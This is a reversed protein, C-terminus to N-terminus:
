LYPRPHLDSDFRHHNQFPSPRLTVGRVEHEALGRAVGSVAIGAPGLVRAACYTSAGAIRCIPNTEEIILFARACQPRSLTYARHHLPTHGLSNHSHSVTKPPAAQKKNTIALRKPATQPLPWIKTSSFINIKTLFCLLIRRYLPFPNWIVM